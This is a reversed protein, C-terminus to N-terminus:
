WHIGGSSSFDDLELIGVKQKYRKRCSIAKKHQQATFGMDSVGVKQGSSHM